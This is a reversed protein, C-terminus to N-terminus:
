NKMKMETLALTYIVKKNHLSDLKLAKEFGIEANEYDKMDYHVAAWQIQADIFRPEQKLAKNFEKIAKDNQKSRSYQIGKKYIKQLKESATKRTIFPDNKQAMGSLYLMGFVILGFIRKNM